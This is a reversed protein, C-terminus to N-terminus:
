MYNIPVLVAGLRAVGFRLAMFAHSNRALIAIRDGARIGRAALGAAIREALSHLEAYSWEVEGCIIAIKDGYRAASRRLMASLSQRRAAQIELIPILADDM